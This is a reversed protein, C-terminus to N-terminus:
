RGSREHSIRHMFWGDPFEQTIATAFHSEDSAEM